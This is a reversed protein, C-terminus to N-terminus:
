LSPGSLHTCARFSPIPTEALHSSPHACWSVLSPCLSPVCPTGWPVAPRQRFCSGSKGRIKKQLCFHNLFESTSPFAGFFFFFLPSPYFGFPFCLIFAPSDWRSRHHQLFLSKSNLVPRSPARPPSLEPSLPQPSVQSCTLGPPAEAEQGKSDCGGTVPPPKATGGM